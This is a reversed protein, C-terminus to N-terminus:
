VLGREALILWWGNAITTAGRPFLLWDAAQANGRFDLPFSSLGTGIWLHSIWSKFAISSLVGRIEMFREPIIKLDLYVALQEAFAAKPLAVAVLLGGLVFASLGVLVIRFLGVSQFGKGSYVLVYVLTLLGVAVLVTVVYPPTFVLVGAVSGGIALAAPLLALNWDRELVSAPSIAGGVLSLGFVFGFNGERVFFLDIIAALGTLASLLLLFLQRASRGLSHRCALMLVLFAVATAFPLYGAGGLVGPLIPFAPDQVRWVAAEADYGLAIGTNLARCGSFVVIVLLLWFIPDRAIGRAVRRRADSLREGGRMSPELVTWLMAPLSFWLLVTAVTSATSFPFLVVPVAALLALHVALGYKAIFRQM